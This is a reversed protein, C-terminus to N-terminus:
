GARRVASARARLPRLLRQASPDPQERRRSKRGVAAAPNGAVAGHAMAWDFVASLFDRYKRHTQISAPESLVWQTREVREVDWGQARLGGAEGRHIRRRRPAGVPTVRYVGRRRHKWTWGREEAIRLAAQKTAGEMPRTGPPWAYLAETSIQRVDKGAAEEREARAAGVVPNQSQLAM